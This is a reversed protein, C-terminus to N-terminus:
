PIRRSFHRLGMETALSDLRIDWRDAFAASTRQFEFALGVLQPVRWHVRHRLFSFARDYFGRGMGLRLGHEDIGVLPVVVLNLWRAGLPAGNKAPIPIGFEGRRTKGTFPYFRMLCRKRDVIVPLYIQVGRRRAAAILASTDAERDFPLYLAVKKGSAFGPLRAVAKAASASSAAHGAVSLARRERRLLKRLENKM